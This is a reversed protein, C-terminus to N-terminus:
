PQWRLPHFEFRAPRSADAALEATLYGGDKLLQIGTLAPCLRVRFPQWGRSERLAASIKAAGKGLFRVPPLLSLARSNALLLPSHLHGIVTQEVQSIKERVAAEQWLFPLASPDHCFLLVREGPKLAAFAARINELHIARLREWEAAEGAATDMKLLPLALLSSTVGLLVYSGLQARWFPELGLGEVARRWSELRMAGHAVFLPIKGLEHDGITARLNAGFRGRLKALCEEASAYAAPDSMGVFGTNCSYDGNAVVLDPQGAGALFRELLHNHGGWDRLWIYRKMFRGVLRTAPNKIVRDDFHLCREREMAAAYHIDSVIAIRFTGTM